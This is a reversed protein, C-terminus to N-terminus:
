ATGCFLREGTQLALLLGVVLPDCFQGPGHRSKCARLSVGSDFVSESKQKDIVHPDQM